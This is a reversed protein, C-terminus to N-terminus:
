VKLWRGFARSFIKFPFYLCVLSIIFFIILSDSLDYRYMINDTYENISDCLVNTQGYQSSGQKILYGSKFYVDYWINYQSNNFVRIYDNNVVKCDKNVLYSPLYIKAM